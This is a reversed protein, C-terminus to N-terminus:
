VIQTDQAFSCLTACHSNNGLVFRTFPSLSKSCLFFLSLSRSLSISLGGKCEVDCSLWNNMTLDSECGEKLSRKVM